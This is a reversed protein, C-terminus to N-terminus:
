QHNSVLALREPWHVQQEGRVGDLRAAAGTTDALSESLQADTTFLISLDADGQDLVEYRLGIDM